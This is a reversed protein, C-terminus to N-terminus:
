SYKAKVQKPTLVENVSHDDNIVVVQDTHKEDVSLNKIHIAPHVSRWFYYVFEKIEESTMGEGKTRLVEEAQDRWKISIQYDVVYLLNLFDIMEWLEEYNLLRKNIYKAFQIHEDTDLAELGSEFISEDDVSRVGLMWGDYFIFEAKKTVLKWGKPLDKKSVVIESNNIFKVNEDDEETIILEQDRQDKLFDILHKPLFPEILPIASGMNSPLFVPSNLYTASIIELGLCNQFNKNVMLSKELVKIKVVLGPHSNIWRFRDGDGEQAGKDYGSVLVPEDSMNLLNELDRKALPIDHTVGRRIFRPDEDRLECLELHTLYHDDISLSVSSYGFNKLLIELIEGQTTKGAGQIASVGILVSEGKQKKLGVLKEVFPLYYKKLDTKLNEPTIEPRKEFLPTFIDMQADIDFDMVKNM